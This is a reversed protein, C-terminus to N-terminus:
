YLHQPLQLQLGRLTTYCSELSGIDFNLIEVETRPVLAAATVLAVIWVLEPGPWGRSMSVRPCAPWRHRTVMDPGPRPSVHTWRWRTEGNTVHSRTPTARAGDGGEGQGAETM